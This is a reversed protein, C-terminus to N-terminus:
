FPMIADTLKKEWRLKIIFFKRIDIVDNRGFECYVRASVNRLKDWFESKRRSKRQTQLRRDTRRKVSKNFSYRTLLYDITYRFKKTFKDYSELSQHFNHPSDFNWIPSLSVRINHKEM